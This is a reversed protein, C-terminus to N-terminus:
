QDHLRCLTHLRFNKQRRRDWNKTLVGSKNIHSIGDELIDADHRGIRMSARITHVTM